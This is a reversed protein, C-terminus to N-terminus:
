ITTHSVCITSPQIKLWNDGVVIRIDLRNIASACIDKLAPIVLTRPFDSAENLYGELSVVKHDASARIIRFAFTNVSDSWVDPWVDSPAPIHSLATEVATRFIDADLIAELSGHFEVEFSIRIADTTSASAGM